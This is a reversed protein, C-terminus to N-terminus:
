VALRASFFVTLFALRTPLDVIFAHASAARGDSELTGFILWVIVAGALRWAALAIVPKAARRPTRDAHGREIWLRWTWAGVLGTWAAVYALSVASLDTGGARAALQAGPLWACFAGLAWLGPDREGPEDADARALARRVLGAAAAAFLVDALLWSPGLMREFRTRGVLADYLYLMFEGAPLFVLAALELPGSGSVPEDGAPRPLLADTVHLAVVAAMGWDFCAAATSLWNIGLFFIGDQLTKSFIGDHALGVAAGLLFAEEDLLRRRRRLAEFALFMWLYPFLCRWVDILTGPGRAALDGGILLAAAAALPARFREKV